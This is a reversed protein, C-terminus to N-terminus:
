AKQKGYFDNLKSLLTGSNNYYEKFLILSLLIPRLAEKLPIRAVSSGFDVSHNEMDLQSYSGHVGCWNPHTFECCLEYQTKFKPIDKNIHDIATMINYSIRPSHGDKGGFTSRMLYEHFLNEDKNELFQMTKKHLMFISATTEMMARSLIVAPVIRKSVVQEFAAKGIDEIRHILVERLSFANFPIKSNFSLSAAHLKAPLSSSLEEMLLQIESIYSKEDM